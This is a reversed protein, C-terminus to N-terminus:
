DICSIQGNFKVSCWNKLEQADAPLLKSLAKRFERQLLQADFSVKELIMKSYDLMSTGM